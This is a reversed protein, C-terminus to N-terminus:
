EKAKADNTEGAQERYANGYAAVFAKPMRRPKGTSLRICVFETRASLVCDAHQNYFAFARAVRLKQDCAVVGTQCTILQGLHVSQHYYIDHHQIVMGADLERYDDITLGLAHTHAWAVRELQQVYSVNNVHGYHDIDAQTPQWMLCFPRQIQFLHHM